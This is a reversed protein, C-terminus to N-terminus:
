TRAFSVEGRSSRVPEGLKLDPVSQLNSHDAVFRAFQILIPNPFELQVPEHIKKMEEQKTWTRLGSASM